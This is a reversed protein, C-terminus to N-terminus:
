RGEACANYVVGNEIKTCDDLKGFFRDAAWWYGLILAFLICWDIVKM